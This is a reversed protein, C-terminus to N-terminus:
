ISTHKFSLIIFFLAITYMIILCCILKFIKYGGKLQNNYTKANKKKDNQLLKQDIKM